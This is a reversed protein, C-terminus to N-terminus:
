EATQGIKRPYSCITCFNCLLQAVSHFKLFITLLVYHRVVIIVRYFM